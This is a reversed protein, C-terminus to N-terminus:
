SLRLTCLSERSSSEFHWSAPARSQIRTGRCSWRDVRTRTSNGKGPRPTLQARPAYAASASSDPFSQVCAITASIRLARYCRGDGPWPGAVCACAKFRGTVRWERAAPFGRLFHAVQTCGAQSENFHAFPGSIAREAEMMRTPTMGPGPRSGFCKSATAGLKQARSAREVPHPPDLPDGRSRGGVCRVQKATRPFRRGQRPPSTRAM